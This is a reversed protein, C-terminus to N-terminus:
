AVPVSAGPEQGLYVAKLGARDLERAPGAMVVRGRQLAYARAAVELALTVDQEVLLVSTGSKTVQDLLDYVSDLMQPALGLSPEDVMLVRPAAMMGRAIALAQQEGGSLMGALKDLHPRLLPILEVTQEIRHRWEDVGPSLALRSDRRARRRLAYGGLELNERVTLTTFIRRGEPVHVLGAEVRADAALSAVDDGFMRVTGTRTRVLGSLAKLVTSKGAGNPGLLASIEGKGVQLNVKEIGRVPGYYVTLDEVELAPTGASESV